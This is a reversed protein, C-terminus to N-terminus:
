AKVECVKEMYAVYCQDSSEFIRPDGDVFYYQKEKGWEGTRKNRYIHMQVQFGHKDNRYLCGAGTDFTIGTRYQLPLRCFEKFTLETM